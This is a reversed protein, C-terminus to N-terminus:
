EIVIKKSFLKNDNTARILYVGKTLLISSELAVRINGHSDTLIIKSYCQKGLVDYLVVLASSEVKLGSLTISFNNRDSINIPNPYISFDVVRDNEINMSIVQSYTIKGDYDTQKLRYYSINKLPSEDISSYNLKSSSTGAGKVNRVTEFRNNDPSREITFYDNATETATIWNLNVGGKKYQATFNLLEIPLVGTSVCASFISTYRTGSPTSAIATVCGNFTGTATWNGSGNALAKARYYRGEIKSCIDDLYVEISDGSPSTGVVTTTNASTIVPAAISNNASSTLSIGGNGLSTSNCLFQNHSVLTRANSGNVVVGESGNNFILNGEANTIGGISGSLTGSGTGSGYIGNLTNGLNLTGGPDAGIYNGRLALVCNGSSTSSLNLGHGSNGSIVNKFTATTGGISDTFNGSSVTLTTLGDGGNAIKATGAANTGIYNQAFTTTINGGNNTIYVGGSTNGSILNGDGANCVQAASCGVYIKSNSSSFDTYVGYGSNAIASTGAANTGIKNGKIVWHSTTSNTSGTSIVIGNGSNGSIVNPEYTGNGGITGYKGTLYIGDSGNAISATGTANVGVYNGKIVAAVAAGQKDIYIGKGANGSVVNGEGSNSGGITVGSIDVGGTTIYIGHLSTSNGNPKATTGLTDVGIYNGQITVLTINNGAPNIYIGHGGTNGSIVNRKTVSGVILSSRYCYIGNQGGKIYLGYVACNAGSIALGNVAANNIDIIIKPSVGTYGVGPQTTGDITTNDASIVPLAGSLTLIQKIGGAINFAISNGNSGNAQTIAWRLSIGDVTTGWAATTVTYTAANLPLSFYLLGM